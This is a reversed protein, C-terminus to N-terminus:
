TMTNCPKLKYIPIQILMETFKHIISKVKITGGHNQIIGFSISLGLGTGQGAPKTTFFPDFLRDLIGQPIGTGLDRIISQICTNGDATIIHHCSILIKKDPSTTPYRENLAFRSNSLMNLIVQQLQRFNGYIPCPAQSFDTSIQIGDKKFQHEVLSLTAEIIRIMDIPENEQNGERAFSLLNKIISAIREGENIIRSLLEAQLSNKESDDLLLQAFNIIGTIPNNVEHAVGAALEGIAALKATHMSDIKQLEDSTLERAILLIKRIINDSEKVPSITLLYEGFLGPLRTEEVRPACTRLFSELPCQLHPPSGGHIIECIG